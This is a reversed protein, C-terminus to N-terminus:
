IRKKLCIFQTIELRWTRWRQTTMKNKLLVLVRWDMRAMRMACLVKSSFGWFIKFVKLCKLNFINPNRWKAWKSIYEFLSMWSSWKMPKNSIISSWCDSKYFLSLIKSLNTTPKKRGEQPSGLIYPCQIRPTLNNGANYGIFYVNLKKEKSRNSCFIYDKLFNSLM